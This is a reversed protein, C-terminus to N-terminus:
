TTNTEFCLSGRVAEFKSSKRKVDLSRIGGVKFINKLISAMCIDLYFRVEFWCFDRVEFGIILKSEVSNNVVLDEELIPSFIHKHICSFFTFLFVQWAFVVTSIKFNKRGEVVVVYLMHLSFEFDYNIIICTHLLYDKIICNVKVHNPM